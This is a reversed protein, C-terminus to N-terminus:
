ADERGGICQVTFDGGVLDLSFSEVQLLDRDGSGYTVRLIDGPELCPNPVSSLDATANPKLSDRLLKNAAAQALTTTTLTASSYFTPVRGFAGYVYTPSTPDEDAAYASVPPTDEETNEGRATVWNYIGDRSYGRTASVLAGRDGADVQWSIPATLMDPLEAIVFVGDADAYCEAGIATACEQVAAWRDGEADWTRVGIVQDTAFAVIVAGPIAAQILGTIATVATVGGRTSYAEVFKDDAVVAELGSAKIDVPGIDPDGEVADVRGWFVPVLEVHGDGYRIGRQIRLRSGYIALQATPTRPIFSTDLITVNATRRVAQSRDVTVSGATHELPGVTGDTKHLQVVTVPTHSEVLTPLFLRSPPPYM